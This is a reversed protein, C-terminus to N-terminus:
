LRPLFMFQAVLGITQVVLPVALTLGMSNICRSFYYQTVHWTAATVAQVRLYLICFGLGDANDLLLLLYFLRRCVSWNFELRLLVLRASPVPRFCLM